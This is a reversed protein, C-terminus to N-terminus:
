IAFSLESSNLLDNRESGSKEVLTVNQKRPRFMKELPTHTSRTAGANSNSSELATLAWSSWFLRLPLEQADMQLRWPPIKRSWSEAGRMEWYLGPSIFTVSTLFDPVVEDIGTLQEM